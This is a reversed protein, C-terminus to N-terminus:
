ETVEPREFAGWQFSHRRAATPVTVRQAKPEVRLSEMEEAMGIEGFFDQDLLGVAKHFHSTLFDLPYIELKKSGPSAQM